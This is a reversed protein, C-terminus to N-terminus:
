RPCATNREPKGTKRFEEIRGAIMDATEGHPRGENLVHIDSAAYFPERRALLKELTVRPDGELLLPRTHTGAVRRLITDTGAKIWVSVARRAVLRRTRAPELAGGGTAIVRAPGDLLHAMVREEMERFGTEGYRSFIGAIDMDAMRSIEHDSDCFGLGLRVALASGVATKGAGPMGTLVVTEPVHSATDAEAAGM